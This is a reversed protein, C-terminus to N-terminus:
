HSKHWTGGPCKLTLYGMESVAEHERYPILYLKIKKLASITLICLVSLSFLVVVSFFWQLDDNREISQFFFFYYYHLNM